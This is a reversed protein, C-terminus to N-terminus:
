DCKKKAVTKMRASQKRAGGNKANMRLTRKKKKKERENKKKRLHTRAHESGAIKENKGPASKWTRVAEPDLGAKKEKKGKRSKKKRIRAMAALHLLSCNIGKM